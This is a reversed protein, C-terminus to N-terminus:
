HAAHGEEEEEPEERGRETRSRALRELEAREETTLKRLKVLTAM